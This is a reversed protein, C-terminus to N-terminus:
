LTEECDPCLAAPHYCEGGCRRCFCVTRAAQPDIYLVPEIFPIM